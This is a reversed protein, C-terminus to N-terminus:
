FSSSSFLVFPKFVRLMPPRAVGTLHTERFFAEAKLFPRATAIAVVHVRLVPAEHFLFFSLFIITGVGGGLVIMAFSILKNSGKKNNNNNSFMPHPEAAPLSHGPRM